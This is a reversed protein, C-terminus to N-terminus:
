APKRGGARRRDELVKLRRDQQEVADTLRRLTTFVEDRVSHLHDHWQELAAVRRSLEVGLPSSFEAAPPQAPWDQPWDFAAAVATVIKPHEADAQITAKEYQGWYEGSVGGHRAATERSWGRARRETIVARRALDAREWAPGEVDAM